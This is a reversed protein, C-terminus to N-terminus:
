PQADELAGIAAAMVSIAKRLDNLVRVRQNDGAVKGLVQAADSFLQGVDKGIEALLASFLPHDPDDTIKIFYGGQIQAMAQTIENVGSDRELEAAVDAPIFCDVIAQNQYESLKSKGVRSVRAASEVGGSAAIQRRTATKLFQLDTSNLKSM